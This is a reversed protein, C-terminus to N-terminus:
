GNVKKCYWIGDCFLSGNFLSLAYKIKSPSAKLFEPAFGTVTLYYEYQQKLYMNESVKAAVEPAELLKKIQTTSRFPSLFSERQAILLGGKELVRNCEM